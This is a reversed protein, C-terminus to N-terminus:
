AGAPDDAPKEAVLIFVPNLAALRLDGALPASQAAFIQLVDLPWGRESLHTKARFLTDLLIASVALKGGPVLRACATRLVALGAGLGGGIFVRDPEPLGSLCGPAEGPVLAVSYAGTRRINEAIHAQRAPAREVAFIRGARALAAAEIAVSGCGAGLDWVTHGPEVALASLAAARVPAKTLLGAEHILDAESLGLRLPVERPKARTVVVLNLPAARYTAAAELTLPTVREEPGGLDEAVTLSFDLAGRTTLLRALGAPGDPGGTLVAVRDHWTIAAFLPAPDDRGHLSVVPLNQWPLGFRACAAQLSTVAPHFRLNEAGLTAILRAGIGFFLPDGDALVVVRRGADRHAAIAAIATDLPAALPVTLAGAPANAKILRRGGALVEARAILEAAAEPRPGPAIGLVDILM